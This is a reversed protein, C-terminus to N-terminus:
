THVAKETLEFAEGLIAPEPTTIVDGTRGCLLYVEGGPNCDTPAGWTSHPCEGLNTESGTCQLNGLWLPGQLSASARTFFVGFNDGKAVCIQDALSQNFSPFCVAGWVDQYKM